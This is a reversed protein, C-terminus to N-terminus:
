TPNPHASSPVELLEKLQKRTHVLETKLVMQRPLDGAVSHRSHSKEKAIEMELNAVARQLSGVQVSRRRRSSVCVAGWVLCM